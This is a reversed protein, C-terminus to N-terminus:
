EALDSNLAAQDARQKAAEALKKKQVSRVRSTVHSWNCDLPRVLGVFPLLSTVHSWNCALSPCSWRFPVRNALTSPAAVGERINRLMVARISLDAPAAVSDKEETEADTNSEEDPEEGQV